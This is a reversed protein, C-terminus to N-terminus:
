AKIKENVTTKIETELRDAEETMTKGKALIDKVFDKDELDMTNIQVNMYAGHVAARACLAGVGADTVSNPNGFDAM